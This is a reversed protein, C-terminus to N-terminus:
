KRWCLSSNDIDIELTQLTDGEATSYSWATVWISFQTSCLNLKLNEMSLMVHYLHVFHPSKGTNHM